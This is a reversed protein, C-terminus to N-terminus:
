IAPQLIEHAGLNGGDDIVDLLRCPQQPPM